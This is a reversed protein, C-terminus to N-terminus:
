YRPKTWDIPAAWEVVEDQMDAYQSNVSQLTWTHPTSGQRVIKVFIRGDGLQVIARRNVMQAPPLLRSYYLLTGEEYAPFMSDGSVEVAVTEPEASAPALATHTDDESDFAYVAQGAGVRGKLPVYREITPVDYECIEDYLANIADRRHGEPEVGKLWRNVTPQTTGLEEALRAQTWGTAKLIIRVKEEIKMHRVKSRREISSFNTHAYFVSSRKYTQTNDPQMVGIRYMLFTM